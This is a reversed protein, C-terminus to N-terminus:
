QIKIINCPVRDLNHSRPFSKWYSLPFVVAYNRLDSIPFPQTSLYRVALIFSEFSLCVPDFPVQSNVKYRGEDSEPSFCATLGELDDYFPDDQESQSTQMFDGTLNSQDGEM